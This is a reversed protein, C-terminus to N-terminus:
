VLMQVGHGPDKTGIELAVRDSRLVLDPEGKRQLKFEGRALKSNLCHTMSGDPNEYHLGAMDAAEAHVDASLVGDRGAVTFRWHHFGVDIHRSTIARLGDFRLTRGGVRAGAVMLWPLTVPGMELRAGGAEIWVPSDTERDWANCHAWSYTEAFARGWNHGQMGLWDAVEWRDGDVDFTGSFTVDPYPTVTKLKPFAMRYFLEPFPRYSPGKPDFALFWRISHEGSDARGQVRGCEFVAPGNEIRFPSDTFRASSIPQTSKVAVIKKEGRDFAIAWVEAAGLGASGRPSLFTHKIWLARKGDPATAKLFHSEVHGGRDDARYRVANNREGDKM